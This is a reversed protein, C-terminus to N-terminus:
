AFESSFAKLIADTLSKKKPPEAKLSELSINTKAVDEQLAAVQKTLGEILSNTKNGFYMEGYIFEIIAGHDSANTGVYSTEGSYYIMITNPELLIKSIKSVFILIAKDAYSSKYELLLRGSGKKQNKM